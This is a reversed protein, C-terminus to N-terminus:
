DEVPIIKCRSLNPYVDVPTNAHLVGPQGRHRYYYGMIRQQEAYTWGHAVQEFTVRNRELADLAHFWQPYAKIGWAEIWECREWAAAPSEDFGVLVYSRISRKALGADLLRHVASEWPVREADSDLALRIVPRNLTALLRAHQQTLRSCDLGQNFDCWSLDRLRSIVKEFHRMSAATLNNDCVIPLNPWDDLERFKGEIRRQGIACFRCRNPCGLTTRTADPNVRQLIGAMGHGIEVNALGALYSSLLEVAPGGVVWRSVFMNGQIVRQRAEPLLWTFPISLYGVDDSWWQTIAKPWGM